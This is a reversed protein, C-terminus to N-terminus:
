RPSRQYGSATLVVGAAERASSLTRAAEDMAQGADSWADEAGTLRRAAETLAQRASELDRTANDYVDCATAHLADLDELRDRYPRGPDAVLALHLRRAPTTTVSM